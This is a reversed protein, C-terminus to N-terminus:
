CQFVMHKGVISTKHGDQIAVVPNNGIRASGPGRVLMTFQQWHHLVFRNELMAMIYTNIFVLIKKNSLPISAICIRNEQLPNSPLAFLLLNGCKIKLAWVKMTNTFKVCESRKDLNDKIVNFKSQSFKM